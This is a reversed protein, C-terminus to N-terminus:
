IWWYYTQLSSKPGLRYFQIGRINEINLYQMDILYLIYSSSTWGQFSSTDHMIGKDTGLIISMPLLYQWNLFVICTCLYETIHKAATLLPSVIPSCVYSRNWQNLQEVGEHLRCGQGRICMVPPSQVVQKTFNKSYVSGGARSMYTSPIYYAEVIRVLSSM